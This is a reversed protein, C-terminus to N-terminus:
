LPREDARLEFEALEAMRQAPVVHNDLVAVTAFELPATGAPALCPLAPLPLLCRFIPRGFRAWSGCNPNYHLKRPENPAPAPRQSLEAARKKEVAM